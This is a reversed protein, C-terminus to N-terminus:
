FTYTRHVLPNKCSSITFLEDLLGEYTLQSRMPTFFDASRDLILLSDFDSDSPEVAHGTSNTLYGVRASELSDSLLKAYDGKGLVKPFFGYLIQFKMIANSLTQIISTDGDIYLGRFSPAMMELSLLDEDFPILDLHFEGIAVDGYIGEEQLYKDCILTRRPVFFISYEM